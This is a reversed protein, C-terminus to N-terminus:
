SSCLECEQSKPQITFQQTQYSPKRRLYYLGTKLGKKWSYFHMASLRTNTPTEMWLNLSQSQCIYIGRDASMDIIDKMPMEWVIKYKEKIKKSLNTFQQISGHNQIISNKVDENWFNLERLENVLYENIVMFEGAITRRMYINSTIPEFCENNGLIQSTSATPMPAVLLSNRIGNKIIRKRLDNWDFDDLPKEGWLDFQFKGESMPSGEFSSYSGLTSSNFECLCPKDKNYMEIFNLKDISNESHVVIKDKEYIDPIYINNKNLIVTWKKLIEKREIALQCSEELAGYYITAFIKKNIEKAEDSSFSLDMKFFVDALGQIGLGIPRHRFNSNRTEFTPYYNIDIIKNLNRVLVKSVYLLKNYDFIGNQVMQPLGISALNCVATETPSSYEIIETCLNSSQITGLNKQNSAENCKDKFLLYPTGTEMQSELIKLWLYRAKYTKVAKKDLEYSLYLKKYEDGYSESLGKCVHPCFCSWDEDNQIREMFLDPIWLGYFLDRARVLEDGTNKRLDLWDEIDPHDPSLYIAFSGNRKGGGQDVYRATENFTKLMPVLGNSIGNTGKIQTGKARIKHVHIGIGGAWKSIKACDKLSEYIGEISDDKIEMLFCSSLQPRPTGSNFLTPTAHTFFKTSMLEYTEKVRKIDDLHIGIAVRLWLHQPREIIETGRKMLYARELTKYGFYDIKYDRSYDLLDQLEDKYKIVTNIYEKSLLSFEFQGNLNGLIETTKFFDDTTNKHNRDIVIRSALCGLDPNISARSVCEQATLNDIETSSIGTRLKDIVSIVLEGANVKLVPIIDFSLHKVKKLIKDFSIPELQGNRKKILLENESM